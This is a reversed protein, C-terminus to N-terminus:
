PLLIDYRTDSQEMIPGAQDSGRTRQYAEWGSWLIAVAVIGIAAIILDRM